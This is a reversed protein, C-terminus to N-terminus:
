ILDKLWTKMKQNLFATKQFHQMRIKNRNLHNLGSLFEVSTEKCNWEVSPAISLQLLHQESVVRLCHRAHSVSFSAEM